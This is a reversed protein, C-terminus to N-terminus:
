KILISRNEVKLIDKIITKIVSMRNKEELTVRAMEESDYKSEDVRLKSWFFLIDNINKELLSVRLSQEPDNAVLKHMLTIAPATQDHTKYYLDLYMKQRTSRFGRRNSEMDSVLNQIDDAANMVEYTHNLSQSIVEHKKIVFYSRIGITASLLFLIGFGIFVRFTLPVRM